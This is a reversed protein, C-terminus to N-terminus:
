DRIKASRISKTLYVRADNCDDLNGFIERSVDRGGENAFMDFGAGLAELDPFALSNTSVLQRIRRHRIRKMELPTETPENPHNRGRL